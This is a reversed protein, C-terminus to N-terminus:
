QSGTRRESNSKAFGPDTAISTLGDGDLAAFINFHPGSPLVTRTGTCDPNLTYIFPTPSTVNANVGNITFTVYDEGKGDGYYISFGAANSVSTEAVGFAPPFLTGNAAVLYQGNLTALTCKAEDGAYGQEVALPGVSVLVGMGIAWAGIRKM